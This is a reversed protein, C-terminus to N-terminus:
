ALLVISCSLVSNFSAERDIRRCLIEFCQFCQVKEWQLQIEGPRKLWFFVHTWESYIFTKHHRLGVSFQTSPNLTKFVNSGSQQCSQCIFRLECCLFPFNLWFQPVNIFFFCEYSYPSKISNDIIFKMENTEVCIGKWIFIYIFINTYISNGGMGYVWICKKKVIIAIFHIHIVVQMSLKSKLSNSSFLKLKFQFWQYNTVNLDRRFRQFINKKLHSIISISLM